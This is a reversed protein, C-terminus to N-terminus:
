NPSIMENTEIHATLRTALLKDVVKLWTNMLSIPRQQDPSKPSTRDKPILYILAENMQQPIQQAKWIHQVLGITMLEATVGGAKLLEATM